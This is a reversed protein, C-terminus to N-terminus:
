TSKVGIREKLHAMSRYEKNRIKKRIDSVEEKSLIGRSNLNKVYSRLKRTLIVYNRKRTNVKKRINGTTRKKKKDQKIKRGKVNMILIAGDKNLDRIDQKTIAEKIDELRSKVFVIREAGAKLTRAALKKKKRLNM